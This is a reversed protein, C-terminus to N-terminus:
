FAHSNDLCIVLPPSQGWLPQASLHCHWFLQFLTKTPKDPIHIHTHTHTHTYTHTHVPLKFSYFLFNSTPMTLWARGLVRRQRGSQWDYNNNNSYSDNNNINNNNNSNNNSNAKSLHMANAATKPWQKATPHQWTRANLTYNQLM